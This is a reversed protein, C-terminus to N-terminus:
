VISSGPFFVWDPSRYRQLAQSPLILFYATHWGGLGSRNGLRFQTPSQLSYSSNGFPEPKHALNLISMNIASATAGLVSDTGILFRIQQNYVRLCKLAVSVGGIKRKLCYQSMFTSVLYQTPM